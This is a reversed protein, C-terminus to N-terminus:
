APLAAARYSVQIEEITWDAMGSVVIPAVEYLAQADEKSDARVIALGRGPSDARPGAVILVDRDVLEQLFKRQATAEDESPGRKFSLEVIFYRSM